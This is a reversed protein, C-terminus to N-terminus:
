DFNLKYLMVYKIEFYKNLDMFELFLRNYKSVFIFFFVFVGVDIFIMKFFLNMGYFVYM